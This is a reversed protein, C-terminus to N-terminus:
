VSPAALSVATTQVSSIVGAGAAPHLYFLRAKCWFGYSGARDQEGVGLVVVRDRGEFLRSPYVGGGQVSSRYGLTPEQGVAAPKRLPM